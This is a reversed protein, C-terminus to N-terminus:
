SDEGFHTPTRSRENYEHSIRTTIKQKTGLGLLVSTVGTDDESYSMLDFTQHRSKSFMKTLEVRDTPIAMNLVMITVPGSCKTLIDYVLSDNPKQVTTM